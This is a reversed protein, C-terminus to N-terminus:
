GAFLCKLPESDQSFERPAAKPRQEPRQTSVPAHESKFWVSLSSAKLEMPIRVACHGAQGLMLVSVAFHSQSTKGMFFSRAEVM